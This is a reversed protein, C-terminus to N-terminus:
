WAKKRREKILLEEAKRYAEVAKTYDVPERQRDKEWKRLAEETVRLPKVIHPMSKMYRRATKESVGFKVAIESAKFFRSM